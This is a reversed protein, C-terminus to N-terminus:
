FTEDDQERIVDAMGAIKEKLERFERAAKSETPIPKEGDPTMYTGPTAPSMKVDLDLYLPRDGFASPMNEMYSMSGLGLLSDNRHEHPNRGHIQISDVYKIEFINIGKMTWNGNHCHVDCCARIDKDPHITINYIEMGAMQLNLVIAIGGHIYVQDDLSQEFKMNWNVIIGDSFLRDAWVQMMDKIRPNIGGHTLGSEIREGIRQRKSAYIRYVFSQLKGPWHFNHDIAILHLPTM